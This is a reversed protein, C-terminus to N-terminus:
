VHFARFRATFGVFVFINAAAPDIEFLSGGGFQFWTDAMPLAGFVELGAISIKSVSTSNILLNPDNLDATYPMKLGDVFVGGFANNAGWGYLDYRPIFNAPAGPVVSINPIFPFVRPNLQFSCYVSQKFQPLILDINGGGSPSVEIPLTVLDLLTINPELLNSTANTSFYCETFKPTQVTYTPALTAAM